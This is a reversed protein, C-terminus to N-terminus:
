FYAIPKNYFILIRYIFIDIDNTFQKIFSNINLKSSLRYKTGYSMLNRLTIDNVINFNGNM